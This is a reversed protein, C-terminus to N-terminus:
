GPIKVMEADGATSLEIKMNVENGDAMKAEFRIRNDGKSVKLSSQGPQLERKLQWYRNYLKLKGDPTLQLIDGARFSAVLDWQVYDNVEIQLRELVVSTDKGAAPFSLTFRLSQANYPNHFTFTQADPEGPQATRPVFTFYSVNLPTLEWEGKSIASLHFERHIDRLQEKQAESFAGAMRATEWAKILALAEESRGNRRLAEMSTTLAFGADYGAARALLWEIDGLSTQPTMSFWGLMAPIYNRHFYEQNKLRYQTQSERFGAYWPEGWNMRTFIHWFFHGPMSADNIVKGKLAPKLHDYWTKVFLQCAYQGMGSSWCGELGDFSIQQLGTENFLDALRLAMEHQLSASALFVKYGHDMLMGVTDGKAHDTATTGYVGRVCDLLKWPASDSLARYRIIENGIVAAHLNSRAYQGFFFTDKLPIEKSERDISAALATSGVRALGGAPVPTVYPDNTTIFDSLTHLGLKIGYVEAKEVCRKMSQWNDPFLQPDLKFHGWTEFPGGQYLYKLGARRTIQLASDINHEGFDMILYSATAAPSIKAWVGDLEPHPLGQEKEINGITALIRDSAAGFLAIKSGTIGGDAYPPAVYHDYGWNSIIRQRDRNRSYAQLVSGFPTLRATQGRYFQRQKVSDQIDVPNGTAFIDFSPETDDETDPYGGLTKVNLAQIGIGFTDNRVVGVTEGVTKSITTPYPGWIALDIHGSSAAKVLEFTIYGKYRGVQVWASTSKEPYQLIFVSKRADWRLSSPRLLQGDVKLSLLPAEQSAPLYEQHGIEDYLSGLNGKENISILLGGAHLKVQARTVPVHGIWCLLLIMWVKKM